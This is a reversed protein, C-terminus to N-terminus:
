DLPIAEPAYIECMPIGSAFFKQRFKPEYQIRNEFQKITIYRAVVADVAMVEEYHEFKNKSFTKQCILVLFKTNTM